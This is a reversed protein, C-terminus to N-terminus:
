RKWEAINWLESDWANFRVGQLSNLHASVVGRSVLPIQAYSRVLIDNLRKILAERQAGIPLAALAAFAADYEAICARAINGGSWQNARAAIRSCQQEALHTQPEIGGGTTFMQVDAFFRRYSSERHEVPDGGFYVRADFDMLETAIGIQLWWDSVLAQTAQRIANTSTMYRVRLPRNKYERIGDGDSDVVGHEDLLENAGDIDQSLCADNRESVYHPPGAILNCEPRGAFGYLEAIRSRDIALSMALRIPPFSLFPHPNAGEMYESRDDGLAPDPDTQNLVIREVLDSFASVVVGKGLAELEALLDPEVQLNWAYDAAGDALVARAADAAEGGGRLIVRDFYPTEGRYHPNREYVIERDANFGTIRYPGTGLPSSNQEVCERAAAGVCDAFQARSIIPSGASVFAQYPWPTPSDFRIRVTRDDLAEVASVGAFVETATCGTAADTCYRWTFVVDAASMESGDSWRLGQKLTWTISTLDAAVGGNELTPIDTALAPVLRGDPGFHALPELTIAGADRDKFGGSLYPGPLTPAQWYLITLVQQEAGCAFISLLALVPLAAGVFLRKLSRRVWPCLKM